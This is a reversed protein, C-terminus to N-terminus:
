EEASREQEEQIRGRRHAALGQDDRRLDALQKRSLISVTADEVLDDASGGVRLLRARLEDLLETDSATSLAAELGVKVERIEAEEATILGSAVLAEAVPRGYARAFKVVFSPDANKGDKWRTIASKDFGGRDAIEKAQVDGAIRKVYAWWQTELMRALM